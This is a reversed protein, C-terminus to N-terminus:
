RGHEHAGVDAVRRLTDYLARAQGAYDLIPPAGAARPQVLQGPADLLAEIAARLREPRGDLPIITGNVGDIVAEAPGGGQTTIVWVGRALAERVTLGFSEKWQSAFVLVDIDAFFTDLGDQAYAPVVDLTGRVQWERRDLSAFGLNLTNDVVVLRWDDRTLAEFAAKTVSYGKVDVNGGVYAFRLTRGPARVIPAAPLRVGNPAVEIKEPPVGNALYLERHAQSPSLLLVAGQLASQMLAAREGLHYAGPICNQCVNLDIKTQFCYRGDERVMFQRDCLWWADHLTIVYPVGHARCAAGLSAGLGQVSHLHVVDPQLAALVDGFAAACIPDDFRGVADNESAPCQFVGIGDREGRTLAQMEASTPLGTFVHVDVDGRAHLRRAMEEVVLTAGGFSRPAYYINAFLVRLGPRVREDPARALLPAVQAHAVAEPAYRALVSARAAESMKNRLAADDALRTMAAFWATEDDAFLGTEGNQIADRFHARPSSVCPLGLIAAELFKINSKADNFPTNELPAIAIDSEALLALYRAFPVPPLREVQDPLEAFGPPLGLEGVIRLRVDPRSRLLHLLAPAAERFDADHTKTGSGYTILVGPSAAKAAGRLGEALSLTDADLANEVIFVDAMGSARMADALHPTSAIGADCALMAARYLGVGSLIGERMEPDLSDINRNQLFLADDFIIDDVEWAMKLGLQRCTEINALVEPYGPVRYLIVQTALAAASLWEETRRWDVVRCAVGLRAFHEQKQWVRYNACQQLTLEAVILVCPALVANPKARAAVPAALRAMSTAGAKAARDRAKWRRWEQARGWAAAAGQRRVLALGRRLARAEASATAPVGRALDVALRLPWTLRWFFSAQVALVQQRLAHAEGGRAAARLAQVMASSQAQHLQARLRANETELDM